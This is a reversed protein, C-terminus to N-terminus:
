GFLWGHLMRGPMWALAGAVLLGGVYLSVM